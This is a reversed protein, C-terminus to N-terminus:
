YTKHCKESTLRSSLGFLQLSSGNKYNAGTMIDDLYGRWRYLYTTVPM